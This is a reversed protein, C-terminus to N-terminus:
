TNSPIRTLGSQEVARKLTEYKKRLGKLANSRSRPHLLRKTVALDVCEAPDALATVLGSSEILQAIERIVLIEEDRRGLTLKKAINSCGIRASNARIVNRVAYFTVKGDAEYFAIELHGCGFHSTRCFYWYHFRGVKPHLQQVSIMGFDAEQLFSHPKPRPHVFVVLAGIDRRCFQTRHLKTVQLHSRFLKAYARNFLARVGSYMALLYAWRWLTDHIRDVRM